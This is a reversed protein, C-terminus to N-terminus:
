YASSITTFMNKVSSGLAFVVTVVAVGIGSAIIAYEVSTAGNDDASFRRLARRASAFRFAAPTM